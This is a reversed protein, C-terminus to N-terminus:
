ETKSYCTATRKWKGRLCEDDTAGLDPLTKLLKCSWKLGSRRSKLKTQFGVCGDREECLQACCDDDCHSRRETFEHKLAANCCGDASEYKEIPSHNGTALLAMFQVSAQQSTFCPSCGAYNDGMCQKCADSKIKDADPDTPNWTGTCTIACKILAPTCEGM